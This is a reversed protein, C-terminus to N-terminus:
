ANGPNRRPQSPPRRLCQALATTLNGENTEQKGTDQAWHRLSKTKHIESPKETIELPLTFGTRVAEDHQQHEEIPRVDNSSFFNFFFNYNIHISFSFLSLRDLLFSQDNPIPQHCDCQLFTPVNPIQKPFLISLFVSQHILHAPIPILSPTFAIFSDLSDECGADQGRTKQPKFEARSIFSSLM